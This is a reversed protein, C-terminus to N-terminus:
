GDWLLNGKEREYNKKIGSPSEARHNIYWERIVKDLKKKPLRKKEEM